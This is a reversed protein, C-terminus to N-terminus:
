RKQWQPARRAKKLGPKKREKKRPDRSLYNIDRLTKYFSGDFKVLARSIALRCAEAQGRIGGGKVKVIIEFKKEMDVARLPSNALSIFEKQSFFDKQDKDNILIGKESNNAFLRARAISTKRRGVGEFYKHDKKAM